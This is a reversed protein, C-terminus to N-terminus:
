ISEIFNIYNKLTTDTANNVIWINKVCSQKASQIGNPSDEVCMSTLPDANLKKIAFNYCDPNPKNNVVDSNTVLLDIFEIQGTKILMLEATTKISNTVCAIKINSNKLHKHLEIKEPMLKAQNSIIDLTIEQKLKEIEESISVDLGLLKLKIKTPLGNYKKIHDERNIQFGVKKQLAINLADYHWDCADVLVGDLDFLVFNIKNM